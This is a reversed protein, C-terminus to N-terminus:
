KLPIAESATHLTLQPFPIEWGQSTAEAVCARQACRELEQYHAAASGKCDLLVLLDLSSTNAKAISVNLYLIEEHAIVETLEMRLRTELLRPIEGLAAAAHRYGLGFVSQIRFNHSLNRPNQKLFDATQYTKYSGGNPVLQVYEPTQLVVKGLVGDSMMVWDGEETAFWRERRDFPRSHLPIVDRMTLRIAGGTLSPNVLDCYFNIRKVLWPLERFIVREGERASGINLLLKVQEYLKPLTHRGALLLGALALMALTLLFWDNSAYLVLFGAMGAALTSGLYYLVRGFRLLFPSVGLRRLWARYSFFRLLLRCLLLVVATAFCALLLNWVRRMISDRLLASAYENWPKRQAELEDRERQFNAIEVPIHARNNELQKRQEVLMACLDKNGDADMAADHIRDLNTLAEDYKRLLQTKRNIEMQLQATRRQRAVLEKAAHLVPQLVEKADESLDVKDVAGDAEQDLGAVGVIAQRLEEEHKELSLRTAAIEKQMAELEEETAKAPRGKGTRMAGLEAEKEKLGARDEEVAQKGQLLIALQAETSTRQAPSVEEKKTIPDASFCPRTFFTGLCVLM